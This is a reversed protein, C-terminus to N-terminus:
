AIPALNYPGSEVTYYSNGLAAPLNIRVYNPNICPNRIIITHQVQSTSTTGDYATTQITTQCPYSRQVEGPLQSAASLSDLIPQLM